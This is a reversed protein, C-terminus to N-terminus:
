ATRVRPIARVALILLVAAALMYAKGVCQGILLGKVPLPSLWLFLWSDVVLGVAGSLAVAWLWRHEADAAHLRALDALESFLFAAGSALAFAPSIVVSLVAGVVIAVIVAVPGFARHVIDRLTFAVGVVLVGAPAVLGFGIDILGVHTVLWNALLITGIFGATRGRRRVEHPCGLWGRRPPRAPPRPLALDREGV